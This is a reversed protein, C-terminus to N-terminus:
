RGRGEEMELRIEGTVAIGFQTYDRRLFQAATIDPDRHM